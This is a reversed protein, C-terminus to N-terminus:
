IQLFKKLFNLGQKGSKEPHFQCGYINKYIISSCFAFNDAVTTTYVIKRDKPKAYFSHVFYYLESDNILNLKRNKVKAKNWGVHPISKVKKSDFSNITGKLIGLGKTNGFESSSEFLLQFGLCIGLFSKGSNIHQIIPKIINKKKLNKMAEKYSGVGPLVLIDSKIIESKKSIIKAKAGVENIANKISFLNSTGSDIISVNNM